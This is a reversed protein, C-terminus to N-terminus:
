VLKILVDASASEVEVETGALANLVAGLRWIVAFADIGRRVALLALLPSALIALLIFPIWLLAVPAWLRVRRRPRQPARHLGRWPLARRPIARPPAKSPDSVSLASM